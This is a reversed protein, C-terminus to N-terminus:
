LSRVGDILRRILDENTDTRRAAQLMGTAVLDGILVRAVGAPVQLTAAVEAISLPTQCAELVQRHEFVHAAADAIGQSTTTVLTELPLDTGQSRTRGGTVLYPRVLPDNVREGAEDSM